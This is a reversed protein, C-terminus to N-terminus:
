FYANLKSKFISVSQCKKLDHPLNNWLEIVRPFFSNRYYNQRHDTIINLNNPDFNRTSYRSSVPSFYKECNLHITGCRCKFLLMLDKLERRFRLPLLGLNRLRDPYSVERPPYNLIFKTARRQVNEVLARHKVTSAHHGYAPVTNSIRSFWLAFFFNALVQIQLIGVFENWWDLNRTQKLFWKRSTDEGSCTM